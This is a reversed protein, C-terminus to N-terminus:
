MDSLPRLGRIVHGGRERGGEGKGGGKRGGERGGGRGEGRGGGKGEGRERGERGGERGRGEGGGEWAQQRCCPSGGFQALSLLPPRGWFPALYMCVSVHTSGCEMYQHVDSIDGESIAGFGSGGSKSTVWGDSVARGWCSSFAVPRRVSM